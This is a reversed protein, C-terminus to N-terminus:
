WDPELELQHINMAVGQLSGQHSCHAQISQQDVLKMLIQYLGSQPAWWPSSLPGGHIATPYWFAASASSKMHGSSNTTVPKIMASPTVKDTNDVLQAEGTKTRPPPGLKVHVTCLAKELQEARRTTKM